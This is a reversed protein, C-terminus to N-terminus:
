GSIDGVAVNVEGRYPLSNQYPSSNTITFTFTVAEGGGSVLDLENDRLERMTNESALAMLDEQPIATLKTM